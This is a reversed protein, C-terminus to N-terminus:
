MSCRVRWWMTCHARKRWSGRGGFGTIGAGCLKRRSGFSMSFLFVTSDFHLLRPSILKGGKEWINIFFLFYFRSYIDIGATHTYRNRALTHSIQSQTRHHPYILLVRKKEREKRRGDQKEDDFGNRSIYRICRPLSHALKAPIM